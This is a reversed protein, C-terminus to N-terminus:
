NARKLTEKEYIEEIGTTKLMYEHKKMIEDIQENQEFHYCNIINIMKHNKEIEELNNKVWLDIVQNVKDIFLNTGSIFIDVKEKEKLEIEIERLVAKIKEINTQSWDIQKIKEEIESNLHTHYIIKEINVGIDNELITKITANNEIEKSIFPFIMTALHLDSAYISCTKKLHIKKNMILNGWIWNQKSTFKVM